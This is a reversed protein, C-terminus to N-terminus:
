DYSRVIQIEHVPIHVKTSGSRDHLNAVLYRVFEGREVVEGVTWVKSSKDIIVREGPEPVTMGKSLSDPFEGTM